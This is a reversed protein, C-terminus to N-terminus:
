FILHNVGRDIIKAKKLMVGEENFLLEYLNTRGDKKGKVVIEYRQEYGDDAKGKQILQSVIAESGSWQRQVKDIKYSSFLDGMEEEMEERVDADIEKYKIEIEVDQLHGSTDFEVSHWLGKWRLKAEISYGQLNEERYWRVGKGAYNEEIFKLAKEPVERKSIGYEREVKEQAFLCQGIGLLIMLLCKNLKM